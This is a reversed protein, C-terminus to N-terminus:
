GCESRSSYVVVFYIDVIIILSKDWHTFRDPAELYYLLAGELCHPGGGGGRREWQRPTGGERGGTEAGREM